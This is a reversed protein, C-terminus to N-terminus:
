GVGHQTIVKQDMTRAILPMLAISIVDFIFALTASVRKFANLGAQTMQSDASLLQRNTETDDQRM